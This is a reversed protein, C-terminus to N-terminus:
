LKYCICEIVQGVILFTIKLLFWFAKDTINGLLDMINM